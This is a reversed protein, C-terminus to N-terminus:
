ELRFEEVVSYVPGKPTLESKMLEIKEAIFNCFEENKYKEFIDQLKGRDKVFKVRAITFHPHFREDRGFGLKSLEEEIKKNLNIIVDGDEVGVWIVRAHGANPFAGVGKLIVKFKKEENLFNLNETIAPIKKDNVEGLFKLTLHINEREVLKMSGAPKVERQVNIIREKLENPCAIALFLRM